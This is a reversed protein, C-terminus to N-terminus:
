NNRKSKGYDLRMDKLNNFKNNRLELAFTSFIELEVLNILM